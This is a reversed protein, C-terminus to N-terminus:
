KVLYLNVLQETYYRSIKASDHSILDVMIIQKFEKEPVITRYIWANNARILLSLRDNDFHTDNFLTASDPLFFIKEPVQDTSLTSTYITDFLMLIKGPYHPLDDIKLYQEFMIKMNDSLPLISEEGAVLKTKLGIQVYQESQKCSIILIILVLISISKKM